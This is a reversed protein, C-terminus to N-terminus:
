ELNYRKRVESKSFVEKEKLPMPLIESKDIGRKDLTILQSTESFDIVIDAISTGLWFTSDYHNVHLIPIK